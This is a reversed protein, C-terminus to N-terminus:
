IKVWHVSIKRPYYRQMRSMNWTQGYDQGDEFSIFLVCDFVTNGNLKQNDGNNIADDNYNGSGAM